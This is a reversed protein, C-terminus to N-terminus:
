NSTRCTTAKGGDTFSAERGKIWFETSGQAYRGGDASLVQPLTTRTRGTALAVAGKGSRTTFTATLVTGDACRYAAETAHALPIGALWGSVVVSGLMAFRSSFEM